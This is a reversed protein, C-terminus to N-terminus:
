LPNIAVNYIKRASTSAKSYQLSPCAYSQEGLVLSLFSDVLLEIM